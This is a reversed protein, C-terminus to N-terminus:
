LPDGADRTAADARLRRGYHQSDLQEFLEVVSPSCLIAVSAGLVIPAEAVLRAVTGPLGSLVYGHMFVSLEPLAFTATLVGILAAAGLRERGTLLRLLAGLMVAVAGAAALVGLVGISPAGEVFLIGAWGAFLAAVAIPVLTLAVAQVVPRSLMRAAVVSLALVLAGVTLWPWLPPASAHWESGELSTRHGDVVLPLSWTAVQRSGPSSGTTTPLPRLRGEHWAFATGTVVRRWRVATAAIADSSPIVRSSAATPSALNAEVGAPSFRLFPEQAVGLVVVVHGPSVRLQLRQDGGLVRAALGPAAPRFGGIRAEFDTSLAPSAHAGAATPSALAVAMVALWGFVM